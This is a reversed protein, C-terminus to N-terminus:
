SAPVLAFREVFAAVRAGLSLEYIFVAINVAILAGNVPTLRRPAANDRLPIMPSPRAACHDIPPAISAARPPGARSLSFKEHSRDDITKM